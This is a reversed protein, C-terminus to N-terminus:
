WYDSGKWGPACSLLRSAVGYLRESALRVRGALRYDGKTWRGGTRIPPPSHWAGNDEDEDEDAQYKREQEALWADREGPGYRPPRDDDGRLLLASSIEQQRRDAEYRDMQAIESPRPLAAPTFHFSASWEREHKLELRREAEGVRHGTLYDHGRGAEPLEGLYGDSYGDGWTKPDGTDIGLVVALYMDRRM